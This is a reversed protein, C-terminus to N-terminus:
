ADQSTAQGTDRECPGEQIVGQVTHMPLVSWHVNFAPNAVQKLQVSAGLSNMTGCAWAAALPRAWMSLSLFSLMEPFDVMVAELWEM